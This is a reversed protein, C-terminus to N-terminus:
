PLSGAWLIYMPSIMSIMPDYISSSGCFVMTQPLEKKQESLRDTKPM